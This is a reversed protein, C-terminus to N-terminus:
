KKTAGDKDREEFKNHKICRAPVGAVVSNALVNKSVVSGAAIVAGDGVTVGKLITSNAGIWVHKGIIVPATKFGEGVMDHDHDVIVVNNAILAGQGIVIRDLCTVSVNYNLFVDEDIELNGNECIIHCNQRAYFNDGVNVISTSGNFQMTFGKELICGRGIYLGAKKRKSKLLIAIKKFLTVFVKLYRGRFNLIAYVISFQKIFEKVNEAKGAMFGEEKM